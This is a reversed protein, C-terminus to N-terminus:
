IKFQVIYLLLVATISNIAPFLTGFISVHLYPVTDRSKLIKM